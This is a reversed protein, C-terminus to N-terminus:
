LDEYMYDQVAYLSPHLLFLGTGKVFCACVKECIEPHLAQEASM